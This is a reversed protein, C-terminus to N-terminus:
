VGYKKAKYRFQRFSLGLIEAARSKIGESQELAKLILSREIQALYNELDFGSPISESPLPFPELVPYSRRIEEPFHKLTLLEGPHLIMARELLNELERINGPFPYNTLADMVEPAIKKLPLRLKKSLRKLIDEVLESLDERRERIPPVPITLVHLRFFLDERFRGDGVLAELNKNTAAMFRLHIERERRGGLRRVKREQLLRLLKVQAQLPLEAIEDLFLTGGEAEEVLGPHTHDAGTFAGKEYGFLEAEILHEPLAGCNVPVFPGGQFPSLGHITRAVVEKGTGSEGLILVTTDVQAAREILALIKKMAPSKAVIKPLEYERRRAKLRLNEEGLQRRECARRVLIKLEELHFPKTLYHYAGEKMMEVADSVTAYATIVIVECDPDNVKVKTLVERGTGDPLRMDTIVLNFGEQDLATMASTLEQAIKVEYGERELAIRLTEALPREDEVLLIRVKPPSPM